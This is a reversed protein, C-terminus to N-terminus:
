FKQLNINCPWKWQHKRCWMFTAKKIHPKITGIWAIGLATRPASAFCSLGSLSFSIVEPKEDVLTAFSSPTGTAEGTGGSSATFQETGDPFEIKDGHIRM